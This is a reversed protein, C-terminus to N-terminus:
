RSELIKRIQEKYSSFVVTKYLLYLNARDVVKTHAIRVADVKHRDFSFVGLIRALQAASFHNTAALSSLVTLKSRDFSEKRITNLANEFDTASMPQPSPPQNPDPPGPQNPQPQPQPQNPDPPGPQNPQPQPQPQNPSQQQCSGANNLITLLSKIQTQLSRISQNVQRQTDPTQPGRQAYKLVKLETLMNNLISLTLQKPVAADQAAGPLGVLLVLLAIAIARFKHTSM